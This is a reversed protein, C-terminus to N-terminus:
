RAGLLEVTAVRLPERDAYAQEAALDAIHVVQKTSAMRGLGTKSNPCVPRRDWMERYAPPVDHLAGAQVGNGDYLLLHGFRAECIRMANALISQFVPELEGPSGSIIQLVESTATQQEQAEALRKQAEALEHRCSELQQELDAPPKRKREAHTKPKTGALRLKRGGTRSKAGKRSLTVGAARRSVWRWAVSM